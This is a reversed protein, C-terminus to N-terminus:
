RSATPTAALKESSGFGVVAMLVVALQLWTSRHPHLDARNRKGVHRVRMRPLFGLAIAQKTMSFTGSITAQSAIVTAMTSLIVLPYRGPAWSSTSRSQFHSGPAGAAARGAGPLEAGARFAILFWAMRIPKGFHGMDAYLAEAGTLALVVAGLRCSPM